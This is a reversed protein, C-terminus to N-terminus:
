DGEGEGGLVLRSQGPEGPAVVGLEELLDMIKAARSHGVGLRRQLFSTSITRHNLALRRKVHVVGEEVWFGSILSGIDNNKELPPPLSVVELSEPIELTIRINEILLRSLFLPTRRVSLALPIKM